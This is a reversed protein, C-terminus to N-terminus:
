LEAIEKGELPMFGLSLFSVNKSETLGYFRVVYATMKIIKVSMELARACRVGDCCVRIAICVVCLADSQLM